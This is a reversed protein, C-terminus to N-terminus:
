QVTISARFIFVNKFIGICTNGTLKQGVEDTLHDTTPLVYTTFGSLQFHGQTM